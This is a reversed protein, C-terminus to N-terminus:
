KVIRVSDCGSFDLGATTKGTLCAETAGQQLSLSQTAFHLVKDDLGDGNVDESAGGISLPSAGAFMVTNPDIAAADFTRSSLIAVPVNGNSRINISNPFSNPKIDIDIAATAASITVDLGTTDCYFQSDPGPGVAFYLFENKEVTLDGESAWSASGGAGFAESALIASGKQVFWNVGDDGCSDIDALNVTVRVKGSFPSEWGVVAASAYYPHVYATNAMLTIPNWPNCSQDVGSANVLIVPLQGGDNWSKIGTGPSCTPSNDAFTELLTYTAPDPSITASKMFYWVPNGCSDPYIARPQDPASMFDLAFNWNNCASAWVTTSVFALGLTLSFFVVIIKRM